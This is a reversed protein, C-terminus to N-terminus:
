EGSIVGADRLFDRLKDLMARAAHGRRAQLTQPPADGNGARADREEEFNRDWLIRSAFKLM